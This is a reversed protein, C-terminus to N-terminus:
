AAPRRATRPLEQRRMPADHALREPRVVALLDVRLPVGEEVRERAGAVGHGRGDRRLAGVFLFRPRVACRDAHPEPQVGALRRDTVLAVGPEVDNPGRPDGRDSAASLHEEGLGGAGDHGAVQRRAHLEVREAVLAQTVDVPRLREVLEEDLADLRRGGAEGATGSSGPPLGSGESRNGPQTRPETAFRPWRVVSSM